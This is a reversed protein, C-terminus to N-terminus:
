EAPQEFVALVPAHDSPKDWGRPERDIGCSSCRSAMGATALVHDLRMGRNRRFSLERYDWWSYAKGSPNHMRFLDSFGLSLIDDFRRREEPHFCISGDLGIPDYVDDPGPAVNFDGALVVEESLALESCDRGLQELFELKHLFRDISPDGGNPVYANVIRVSGTSFSLVRKQESLFGSSLGTRVDSVSMRVAAAVGNLGKQGSRIVAYGAKELQEAPFLTDEVKTEQMLLVDPSASELWRMVPEIRMRVSNVNWTAIRLPL